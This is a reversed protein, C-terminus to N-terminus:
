SWNEHNLIRYIQAYSIHFERKIANITKGDERLSCLRDVDESSLKAMPHKDGALTRGKKTKDDMNDQQTGTFLHRPNVCSPTDCKHLVELDGPDGYAFQYSLRHAYVPKSKWSIVGYGRGATASTWLWCDDEGKQDVKIWFRRLNKETYEDTNM